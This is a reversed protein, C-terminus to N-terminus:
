LLKHSTCMLSWEGNVKELGRLLFRWLSRAEKTQRFVLEVIAKRHAYIKKGDKSRLKRDM